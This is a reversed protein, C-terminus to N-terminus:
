PHESDSSLPITLAEMLYIRFNFILNNYDLCEILILKVWPAFLLSPREFNFSSDVGELNQAVLHHFEFQFEPDLSFWIFDYRDMRPM